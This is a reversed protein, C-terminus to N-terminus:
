NKVCRCSISILENITTIEVGRKTEYLSVVWRFNANNPIPTSSWWSALSGMEQHGNWTMRGIPLGKFGSSDFEPSGSIISGSWGWSPGSFTSANAAMKSGHNTGRFGHSSDALAPDMGLSVELANWDERSPIRWGSPCLDADFAASRNYFKGATAYSTSPNYYAPEELGSGSTPGQVLGGTFRLNEAFWIQSGIEVIKYVEGDRPDTFTQGFCAGADVCAQMSAYAGGEVVACNNNVCDYRTASVPAPTAFNMEDSVPPYCSENEDEQKGGTLTGCSSQLWNMFNDLADDGTEPADSLIEDKFFTQIDDRFKIVVAVGALAVLPVIPFAAANLEEETKGSLDFIESLSQNNGKLSEL